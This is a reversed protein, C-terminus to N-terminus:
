GLCPHSQFFRSAPRAAKGIQLCDIRMVAGRSCVHHHYENKSYGHIAKCVHSPQPTCMQLCFSGCFRAKFFHHSPPPHCLAGCKCVFHDACGPGVVFMTIVKGYAHSKLNARFISAVFLFFFKQSEMAEERERGETRGEQSAEKRGGEM